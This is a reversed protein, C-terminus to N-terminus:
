LCEKTQPFMIRIETKMTVNKSGKRHGNKQTAIEFIKIDIGEHYIHSCQLGM